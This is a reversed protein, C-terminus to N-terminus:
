TPLQITFKSGSPNNDTVYLEGNHDEVIKKCLYLGLGTGQAKRTEETGIRYFKKFINQKEEDPIGSGEDIVTIRIDEGRNMTISIPTDPPSYKNANELLNSVLLKLLVPDGTTEIDEEIDMTFVRSPYRSSFQQGVRRVLDSLNIDEVSLQYSSDELQSSLLINNILSDLRITEQLTMQLLKEKKTEDLKYKQLTELNLKAVAVPTKLEHTIAMVFNQQQQQLTFQRRVSRFVFVAGVLILLLFTSGEGIFKSISRKHQDDIRQVQMHFNASSTDTRVQYLDIKQLKSIADAQKMLSVAWWLLAAVIYLLLVWYVVTALHLKKRSDDAM